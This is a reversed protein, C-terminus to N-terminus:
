LGGFVQCMRFCMRLVEYGLELPGCPSQPARCYGDTSLLIREGRYCHKVSMRKRSGSGRADLGLLRVRHFSNPHFVDAMMPGSSPAEWASPICNGLCKCARCLLSTLPTHPPWICLVPSAPATLKKEGVAHQRHPHSRQVLPYEM